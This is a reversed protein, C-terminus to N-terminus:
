KNTRMCPCHFQRVSQTIIEISTKNTSNTQKNTHNYTGNTTHTQKKRKNHKTPLWRFTSRSMDMQAVTWTKVINELGTNDYNDCTKDDENEQDDNEEDDYELGLGDHHHCTKNEDDYERIWEDILYTIMRMRMQKMVIMIMMMMMMM